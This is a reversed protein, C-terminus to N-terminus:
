LCFGPPETPSRLRSTNRGPQVRADHLETRSPPPAVRGPLVALTWSFSTAPTSSSWRPTPQPSRRETPASRLGHRWANGNVPPSCADPRRMSCPSGPFGAVALRKGDRSLSVQHAGDIGHGALVTSRTLVRLRNAHLDWRMVGRAGAYYLVSGDPSFAYNFPVSCIDKRKFLREYTRPGHLSISCGRAIALRGDQSWGVTAAWTGSHIRQLVGGATTDFVTAVGSQSGEVLRTGDPSFAIAPGQLLGQPGVGELRLRLRSRDLARRLAFVAEDTPSAQVAVMALLISREPDVTLQAESEVALRRSESTLAAANPGARRPTQGVLKARQTAERILAFVLLATALAAVALSTALALRQRRAAAGRSAGVYARQLASLEPETRDVAQGVSVEANRLGNGRLLFRRDRGSSEWERAKVLYRLGLADSAAACLEGCTRYRDGPEKALAKGLVTDIAPPLGPRRESAAPPPEAAHAWLLAM